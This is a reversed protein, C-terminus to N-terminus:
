SISASTSPTSDTSRWLLSPSSRSHGFSLAFEPDLRLNTQCPVTALINDDQEIGRVKGPVVADKVKQWDCRNIAEFVDVRSRFINM